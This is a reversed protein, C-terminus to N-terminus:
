SRSRRGRSHFHRMGFAIGSLLIAIAPPEPVAHSGYGGSGSTSRGFNTQWTEYEDDVLTPKRWMVYDAADVAGDLNFDGPLGVPEDAAANITLAAQVMLEYEVGHNFVVLFPNSPAYQNSTLRAFFGYV